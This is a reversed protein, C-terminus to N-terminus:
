AVAQGTWSWDPGTASADFPVILVIQPKVAPAADVSWVTALLAVLVILAFRARRDRLM